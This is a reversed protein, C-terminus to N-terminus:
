FFNYIESVVIKPPLALGNNVTRFNVYDFNTLKTVLVNLANELFFQPTESM